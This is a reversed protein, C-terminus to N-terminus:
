GGAIVIEGREGVVPPQFAGLCSIADPSLPRATGCPLPAAFFSHPNPCALPLPLSLFASAYGRMDEPVGTRRHEQLEAHGYIVHRSDQARRLIDNPSSIAV